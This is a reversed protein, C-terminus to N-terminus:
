KLPVCTPKAPVPPTRTVIRFGIRVTNKELRNRRCAIGLFPIKPRKRPKRAPLRIKLIQSIFM